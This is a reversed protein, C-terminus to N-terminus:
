YDVDRSEKIEICDIVGDIYNNCSIFDKMEKETEFWCYDFRGEISLYTVLFKKDM